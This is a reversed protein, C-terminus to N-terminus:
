LRVRPYIQSDRATGAGMGPHQRGLGAELMVTPSGAGVCHLKLSYGGVDVLRGPEPFERADWYNGVAQYGAGVFAFALGAIWIAWRRM